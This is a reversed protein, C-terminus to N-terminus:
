STNQESCLILGKQKGLGCVADIKLKEATSKQLKLMEGPCFCTFLIGAGNKGATGAKAPDADILPHRLRTGSVPKAPTTSRPNFPPWLGTECAYHVPSQVPALSRDPAKKNKKAAGLFPFCSKLFGTEPGREARRFVPRQCGNWGHLANVFLQGNQGLKLM